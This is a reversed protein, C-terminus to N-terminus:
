FMLHGFLGDLHLLSIKSCSAGLDPDLWGFISFGSFVLFVGSLFYFGSLVLFGCGDFACWLLLHIISLAMWALLMLGHIFRAAADGVVALQFDLVFVLVEALAAVSLCIPAATFPHWSPSFSPSGVRRLWSELIAMLLWSELIDMLIM